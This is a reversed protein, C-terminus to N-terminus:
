PLATLAEIRSGAEFMAAENLPAASIQVAVPLGNAAKGTPVTLTPFDALAWPGSFGPDGTYGLGEPATDKAGPSLLVDVSSFLKLMEKQYIKRLRLARLYSGSDVLMGTEILGRLKAGYLDAHAAYFASHAAAVETRLLTSVIAGQIDFIGPLPVESVSFNPGSLRKIFAEHLERTEPTANDRFFGRLIGIRIPGTSTSSPIAEGSLAELMLKADAVSRTLGGIHDLAWSVPYVGKCSVRSQTPMFGVVGCYAAPRGISAVTQSGTAAPVMRAAVAAASGSSSGGPTHGVNNPNRTQGPDFSAFETTVTKGLVIAGAKKLQTVAVADKTPINDQLFRSGATTRLGATQFIDKIGVPVGHLTGRFSGAGAEAECKQAEAMARERDFTVWARIEPEVKDIHALLGKLYNVPSLKGSRILEAAETLTLNEPNM